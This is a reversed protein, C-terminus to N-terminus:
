EATKVDIEYLGPQKALIKTICDDISECAIGYRRLTEYNKTSIMIHKDKKVKNLDSIQKM